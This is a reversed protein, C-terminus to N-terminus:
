LSDFAEDIYEQRLTEIMNLQNQSYLIWQTAYYIAAAGFARDTNLNLLEKFEEFAEEAESIIIEIAEPHNSRFRINGDAETSVEPGAIYVTLTCNCDIDIDNILTEQGANGAKGAMSQYAYASAFESVDYTFTPM